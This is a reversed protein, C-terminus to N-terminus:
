SINRRETVEEKISKKIRSGTANLFVDDLTPKSVNMNVPVVGGGSLTSLIAPVTTSADELFCSIESGSRRLREVVDSLHWEAKKALSDSSFALTVVDDGMELKLKEPPGQAVITGGDIIAIEDALQDAEELYQTTLFVTTGLEKNLKRVENWITTRSLPDLGTTPEDLFLIAPDHVLALALDLRRKMGGSFTGVRQKKPVDDLAVMALLENARAKSLEKSFGFLMAQMELLETATMLPDLGVDQLAVGIEKRVDNGQKKVDYGSVVATGRSPALVTTLMKVATSKGAGNPGLFGFITGPPIDLDLNQVAKFSGFERELSDTVITGKRM